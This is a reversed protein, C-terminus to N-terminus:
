IFIEHGIKLSYPYINLIKHIKILTKNCYHLLNEQNVTKPNKSFILAFM